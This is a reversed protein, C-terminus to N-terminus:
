RSGRARLVCDSCVCLSSSDRCEVQNLSPMIAVTVITSGAPYVGDSSPMRIPEGPSPPLAVQGALVVDYVPIAGHVLAASAAMLCAALLSADSDIVRLNVHMSAGMLEEVRVVSRLADEVLV